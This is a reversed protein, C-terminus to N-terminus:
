GSMVETTWVWPGVTVHWGGPDRQVGLGRIGPTLRYRRWRRVEDLDVLNGSWRELAYVANDVDSACGTVQLGVMSGGDGGHSEALVTATRVYAQAIAAAVNGGLPTGEPLTVYMNWRGM